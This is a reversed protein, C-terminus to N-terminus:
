KKRELLRCIGGIPFYLILGAVATVGLEPLVSHLLINILNVSQYNICAYVVTLAARLALAGALYFLYTSYRKANLLHAYYGVLYGGIMFVVPLISIGRSGLAEIVFGAAIGTMAGAHAGSFYAIILVTCIMLDPVAGFLQLKGFFAVQMCALFLILLAFTVTYAIMRSRTRAQYGLIRNRAM